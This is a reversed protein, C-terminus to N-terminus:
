RIYRRRFRRFKLARSFPSRPPDNLNFINIPTCDGAGPATTCGFDSAIKSIDIYGLQQQERTLKGYSLHADWTWASEGFAGKLGANLTETTNSIKNGRNGVPITRSLLNDSAGHEGFAIGFPNYFQNAPIVLNNQELDFPLPALQTHTVTKHYLAEAYAEVNDTLKYTGLLFM